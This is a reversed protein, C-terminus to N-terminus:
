SYRSRRFDANAQFVRLVSALAGARVTDISESYFCSAEILARKAGWSWKLSLEERDQLALTNAELEDMMARITREERGALRLDEVVQSREKGANPDYDLLVGFAIVM